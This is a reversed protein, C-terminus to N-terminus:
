RKNRNAALADAIAGINGRTLPIGTTVRPVSGLKGAEYPNLQQATIKKKMSNVNFILAMINSTQWWSLKDLFEIHETLGEM